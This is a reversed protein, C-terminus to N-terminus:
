SSVPRTIWSVGCSRVGSRTTSYITSTATRSIGSCVTSTGTGFISLFNILPELKNRFFSNGIAHSLLIMSMAAWCSVAGAQDLKNRLFLNRVTDNLLGDARGNPLDPLSVVLRSHLGLHELALTCRRLM